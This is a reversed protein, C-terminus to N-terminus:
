ANHKDMQRMMKLTVYLLGGLVLALVPWLMWQKLASQPAAIGTGANAATIDGTGLAPIDKGISDKFFALDYVPAQALSDGFTLTYSKGKELYAVIARQEQFPRAGTIKLPPNDDNVIELLVDSASVGLNVSQIGSSLVAESILRRDPVKYFAGIRHFYKPGSVALELKDTLYPADFHIRIYSRKDTSDTQALQPEPVPLYPVVGAKSGYANVTLVKVPLQGRGIFTVRLYRYSVAPFTIVATFKESSGGTENWYFGERVAYWSKRDNSGSITLARTAETNLVELYLENYIFDGSHEVTIFTQRTSDLAEEIVPFSITTRQAAGTKTDLVYPVQVKQNDLVRVDQPWHYSRAAIEPSLMLRYFGDAPVANLPAVYRPQASSEVALLLLLALKYNMKGSM